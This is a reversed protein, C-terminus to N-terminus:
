VNNNGNNMIYDIYKICVLIEYTESKLKELKGKINLWQDSKCYGEKLARMCGAALTKFCTNRVNNHPQNAWVPTAKVYGWAMVMYDIASLWQQSELMRSLWM